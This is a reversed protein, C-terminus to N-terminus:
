CDPVEIGLADRLRDLEECLDFYAECAVVRELDTGENPSLLAHRAVMVEASAASLRDVVSRVRPPMAWDDVVTITGVEVQEM